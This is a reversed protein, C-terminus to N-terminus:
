RLGNVFFKETISDQCNTNEFALYFKFKPDLMDFCTGGSTRPCKLRGCAGCRDVGIYQALEQAYQLRGNRCVFYTKLILIQTNDEVKGWM